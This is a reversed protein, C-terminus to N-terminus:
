PQLLRAQRDGAIRCRRELRLTQSEDDHEERRVDGLPRAACRAYDAAGLVGVVVWLAAGLAVDYAVLARGTVAVPSLILMSATLSAHMLMAVFLSGTHDYVRVM